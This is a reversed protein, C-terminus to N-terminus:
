RDIGTGENFGDVPNSFEFRDYTHVWKSPLVVFKRKDYKEGWYQETKGTKKEQILTVWFSHIEKGSGSTEVVSEFKNKLVELTIAKFDIDVKKIIKVNVLLPEGDEGVGIEEGTVIFADKDFRGSFSDILQMNELVPKNDVLNFVSVGNEYEEKFFNWSKENEPLEGLRLYEKM